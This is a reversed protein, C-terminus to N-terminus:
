NKKSSGFNTPLGMARLQATEEDEEEEQEEEKKLQAEIEADEKAKAKNQERQKLKALRKEEIEQEAKEEMQKLIVQYEEDKKKQKEQETLAKKANLEDKKAKLKNKVQSLTAKEVRMSKGEMRNHRKSNIHDLWGVSDKMLCDCLECYFGGQNNMPTVGDIVNAKGIRKVLNLDESRAQFPTLTDSAPMILTKKQEVAVEGDGILGAERDKARQEYEEDAWKKRFTTSVFQGGKSNSNKNTTTTDSMTY